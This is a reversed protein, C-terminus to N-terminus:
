YTRNYDTSTSICYPYSIVRRLITLSILLLSKTNDSFRGVLAKFASCNTVRRSKTDSPASISPKAVGELFLIGMGVLINLGAVGCLGSNVLSASLVYIDNACLSM